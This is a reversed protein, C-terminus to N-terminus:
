LGLEKAVERLREIDTEEQKGIINPAVNVILCNQQGILHNYKEIIFEKSLLNDTTYKPDWFWNSMNRICITAEFPLYYKKDNHTYIKPDNVPTMHPDLLRFDSPFYKMPMNEKYKEPFFKKVGGGKSNFKGITVNVSIACNPQKRKVLDYIRDIQWQSNTKDWGGDLWLEVIEGYKGCFLEELQGCMYDAYKDDNKYCPEHRDWLSYYLGLKVGYKKCAKAVEEVVDTPNQTNKVCYDTYKTDFMCFGDHHKSILIIYNMGVDKANKVWSDADISPPNYSKIDLTGDSWETDNFTNIGFHIFMGYKRDILQKQCLTPTLSQEQKLYNPNTPSFQKKFFKCM